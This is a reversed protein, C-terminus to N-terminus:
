GTSVPKLWNPSTHVSRNCRCKCVNGNDRFFEVLIHFSDGIQFSVCKTMEDLLPAVDVLNKENKCGYPPERNLVSCVSWFVELDHKVFNANDQHNSNNYM